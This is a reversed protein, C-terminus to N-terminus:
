LFNKLVMLDLFFLVIENVSDNMNCSDLRRQAREFICLKKTCLKKATNHHPAFRRQKRRRRSKTSLRINGNM